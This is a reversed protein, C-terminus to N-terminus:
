IKRHWDHSLLGPGVGKAIVLRVTTYQGYASVVVSVVMLSRHAQM